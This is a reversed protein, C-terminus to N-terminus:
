RRDSKKQGNGGTPEHGIDAGRRVRKRSGLAVLLLPLVCCGAVLLGVLLAGM